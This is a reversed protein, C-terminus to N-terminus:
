DFMLRATGRVKRAVHEISLRWFFANRASAERRFLACLHSSYISTGFTKNLM